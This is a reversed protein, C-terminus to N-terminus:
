ATRFFDGGFDTLEDMGLGEWSGNSTQEFFFRTIGLDLPTKHDYRNPWRQIDSEYFRYLYYVLGSTPHYEKCSFRYLNADSLTGRQSLINGFPDYEYKAANLQNPYILATINGNGDAHYFATASPSASILEGNDTRALM